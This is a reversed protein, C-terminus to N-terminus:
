GWRPIDNRSRDGLSGGSTRKFQSEDEATPPAGGNLGSEILLRTVSRCLARAQLCRCGIVRDPATSEIGRTSAEAAAATTEPSCVEPLLLRRLLNAPLLAPLVRGPLKRHELPLSFDVSNRDSRLRDNPGSRSGNEACHSWLRCVYSVCQTITYIVGATTSLLDDIVM